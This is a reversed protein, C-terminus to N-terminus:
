FVMLHFSKQKNKLDFWLLDKIFYFEGNKMCSAFFNKVLKHIGLEDNKSPEVFLTLLYETLKDNMLSTTDVSSKEDPTYIEEAFSGCAFEYFDTCPDVKTNLREVMSAASLVCPITLCRETRLLEVVKFCSLSILLFSWLIM